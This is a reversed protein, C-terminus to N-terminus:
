EEELDSPIIITAQELSLSNTVSVSSPRLKYFGKVSLWVAMDTDTNDFLLCIRTLECLYTPLCAFLM